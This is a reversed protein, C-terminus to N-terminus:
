EKMEEDCSAISSIAGGPEAIREADAFSFLHRVVSKCLYVCIAKETERRKKGM